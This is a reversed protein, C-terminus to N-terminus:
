CQFVAGFSNSVLMISECCAALQCKYVVIFVKSTCLHYGFGTIKNKNSFPALPCFCPVTDWNRNWLLVVIDFTDIRM